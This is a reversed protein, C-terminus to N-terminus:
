KNGQIDPNYIQIIPWNLRHFVIKISVIPLMWQKTGHQISVTQSPSSSMCLCFLQNLYRKNHLHYMYLHLKIGKM